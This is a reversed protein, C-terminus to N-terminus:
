YVNMMSFHMLLWFLCRLHCVCVCVFYCLVFRLYLVNCIYIRPLVSSMQEEGERAWEIRWDTGLGVCVPVWRVARTCTWSLTRTRVYRGDSNFNLLVFLSPFPHIIFFALLAFANPHEASKICGTSSSLFVLQVVSSSLLFDFYSRFTHVFLCTIGNGNAASCFAEGTFGRTNSSTRM